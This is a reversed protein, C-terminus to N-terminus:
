WDELVSPPPEERQLVEPPQYQPTGGTVGHTKSSSQWMAFGFDILYVYGASDVLVNEMKVDRHVLGAGHVQELLGSLQVLVNTLTATELPKGGLFEDQMGQSSLPTCPTTLSCFLVGCSPL